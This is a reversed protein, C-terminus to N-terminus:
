LCEQFLLVLAFALLLDARVLEISPHLIYILINLECRRIHAIHLFDSASALFAAMFPFRFGAFKKEPGSTWHVVFM